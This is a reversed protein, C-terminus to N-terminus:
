AQSEGRYACRPMKTLVEEGNTAGKLLSQRGIESTLRLNIVRERPSLAPAVIQARVLDPLMGQSSISGRRSARRM